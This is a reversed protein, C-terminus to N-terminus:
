KHTEGRNAIVSDFVPYSHYYAEDSDAKFLKKWVAKLVEKEAKGEKTLHRVISARIGSGVDFSMKKRHVIDMPLVDEFSRRLIHKNELHDEYKHYFDKYHLDSAFSYVYRDLFPCRNEISHAMCSQDIRRLETFCMDSILKQRVGKWNDEPQFMHYGCFIEDAGEGSLIVKLGDKHASEALLYSCIGNSIISPNYSETAYVIRRVLSVLMENEIHSIYKVCNLGLCKEIKKVYLYDQSNKEALTYYVADKRHAAVVSAIISSDLGGSLFIGVPEDSSPLRKVVAQEVLEKLSINDNDTEPLKHRSVPVAEARSLNIRSVGKPLMEFCDIHTVAKLESSIFTEAHSKGIFLPKKGIYDRLCFLECNKEDFILGSYFGDLVSIIETGFSEFLPLVVQTDCKGEIMIDYQNRLANHNYIEGNIVAVFNKYKFPQSGSSSKDNIALRNFGLSLLGHHYIGTEDPGRHKIRSINNNLRTEAEPGYFLLIGCMKEIREYQFM